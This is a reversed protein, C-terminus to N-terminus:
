YISLTDQRSASLPQSGLPVGPMRFADAAKERGSMLAAREPRDAYPPMLVEVSVRRDHHQARLYQGRPITLMISADAVRLREVGRACLEADWSPVHGGDVVVPQLVRRPEEVKFTHSTIQMGM